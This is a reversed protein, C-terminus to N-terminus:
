LSELFRLLSAREDASLLRFGERAAEAEGGHWLIAEAFGRARGDHLLTDHGNVVPVLGLGWLPPTRWEMGSADYDPRGDALGEGMDHLLLDTYPWIHQGQLASDIASSSTTWDPVHCGDCGLTGFLERGALVDPDDVDRRAPVALTASYYTVRDAILESLEPDGGTTASACASQVPSCEQMPHLAGTIGMDGLFAGTVQQVMGVQNAKWGFRGLGPAGTVPDWPRNARGSIGDDDDDDPDERSLIDQEAIAELLGLGIMHPAVRPSTMADAALPGLLAEFGLTPRRLSYATGDGYEGPEETWAITIAGEAPVDAIALPQVQGGYIPEPVPGGDAAVGPVSLRVLLGLAAEGPQPPAARGDFAHCGSCSRANFLPGLGDRGETSAPAAVWNDKFFSNGVFFASEGADDLNRAHYSFAFNTADFVTTDGGALEEGPLPGAATAECAVLLLIAVLRARPSV